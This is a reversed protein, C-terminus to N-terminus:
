RAGSGSGTASSLLDTTTTWRHSPSSSTSRPSSDRTSVTPLCRRTNVVAAVQADPNKRAFQETGELAFYPGSPEGVCDNLSAFRQVTRAPQHHNSGEEHDDDNGRPPPAVYYDDGETKTPPTGGTDEAILLNGKSDLALNDPANFGSAESANGAQAGVYDYAFPRESESLDIVLVGEDDGESVREGEKMKTVDGVGM